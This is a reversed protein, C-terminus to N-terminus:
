KNKVIQGLDNIARAYIAMGKVLDSRRTAEGPSHMNSEWGPFQMGFAVVNDAEKAYTGGGIALPKSKTDGTELQYSKLLTSVLVSDRSYFLVMNASNTPDQDAQQLEYGLCGSSSGSYTYWYKPLILSSLRKRLTGNLGETATSSYALLSTYYSGSYKYEPYNDAHQEAYVTKPKLNLNISVSASIAFIAPLVIIRLFNKKM